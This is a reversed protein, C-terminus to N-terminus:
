PPSGKKIHNMEILVAQAQTRVLGPSEDRALREVAARLPGIGASPDKAVLEQTARLANVLILQRKFDRAALQEEAAVAVMEEPDLMEALTVKARDDGQAALMTAANYRVDPYSDNLMAVLRRTAEQGGHSGLAFAATSRMLAREDRSAAVIAALLEPRGARKERSTQSLHVALAKVAAMRVASEEPDRELEAAKVLIDVVEPARFEGIANCLYIRLELAHEDLNGAEMETRLVDVLQAALLPDDKLHENRQNRLVDALDHAAQWRGDNNRRLAAVYAKPDAGRDALWKIGWGIAFIIAVILAPIVFLQVIFG